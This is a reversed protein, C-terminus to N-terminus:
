TYHASDQKIRHLVRQMPGQESAEGEDRDLAHQFDIKLLLLVRAALFPADYVVGLLINSVKHVASAIVSAGGPSTVMLLLLLCMLWLLWLLLLRLMLRHRGHRSYGCHCRDGPFKFPLIFTKTLSLMPPINFSVPVANNLSGTCM